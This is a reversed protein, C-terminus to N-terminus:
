AMAQGVLVLAVVHAPYFVYFFWKAARRGVAGSPGGPGRRGDYLLMLPLALIMAWQPYEALTHGLGMPAFGFLRWMLAYFGTLMDPSAGLVRAGRYFASLGYHTNNFFMWVADFAVFAVALRAKSGRCAWFAVGMLIVFVGYDWGIACGTLALLPYQFGWPLRDVLAPFADILTSLSGYIAAFMGIQYACYLAVNRTRRRADPERLLTAVLAIHFLTPFINADLHLASQVVSMIVGFAYLRVLLARRNRTYEVSWGILFVFIPMAPRGAWRLWEPAGPLFAGVHDMVMFVCALTKLTFANM